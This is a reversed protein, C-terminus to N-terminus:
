KPRYKSEEFIKRAPTALVEQLKMNTNRAAFSKVIQWGFWQGINGPSAEPMGQTFPAEGIYTQIATPNVTYLDENKIVFAWANGENEKLWEIQKGTYGTVISDAADPVFQQVLYWQKGKEVMREIFPKTASSDPHIDDAIIQMADNVMYEKSFRRSRYAPAINLMYENNNYVSFDKGLYFQLSVGLFDRGLFDATYSDNLKALADIPGVLTIIKPINYNPYYYKVYKFAKTMGTQFDDLDSHVKMATDYVFYNQRIFRRMESFQFGTDQRPDIGLINSVFIPLFSPYKKQLLTLSSMMQTTDMAFFDKEFREISVTVNIHSVNPKDNGSCALLLMIIALVYLRQM